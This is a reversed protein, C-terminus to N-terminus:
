IGFIIVAGRTRFNDEFIVHFNKSGGQRCSVIFIFGNSDERIKLSITFYPLLRSALTQKIGDTTVDPSRGRTGIEGKVVVGKGNLLIVTGDGAM